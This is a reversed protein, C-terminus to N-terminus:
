PASIFRYSGKAVVIEFRAGKGPTGNETMTIGTIGLIERSLFLGLGTHKGFGRQFLRVKDGATVGIGNDESVITFGTGTEATTFTIETAHEGHRAANDVLNFIVKEFLPDAFIEVNEAMNHITINASGRSEGVKRIVDRLSQWVPSQVGIEQYDRAFEVHEQISLAIHECRTLYSRAAEETVMDETLSLYSLLASLQNLIDHRTISNLLNLKKMAQKLARETNRRETMDILIGRIGVIKGEKEV